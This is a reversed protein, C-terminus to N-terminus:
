HSVGHPIHPILYGRYVTFPTGLWVNTLIHQVPIEMNKSWASKIDNKAQTGHLSYLLASVVLHRSRSEASKTTYRARFIIWYRRGLNHNTSFGLCPSSCFRDNLGLIDTSQHPSSGTKLSPSCSALAFIPCLQPSAPHSMYHAYKCGASALFESACLVEPRSPCVGSPMPHTGLVMWTPITNSRLNELSPQAM